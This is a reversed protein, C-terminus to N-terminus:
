SLLALLRGVNCAGSRLCTAGAVGACPHLLVEHMPENTTQSSRISLQPTSLLGTMILCLWGQEKCLTTWLWGM